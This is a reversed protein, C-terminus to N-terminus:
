FRMATQFWLRTEDQPAVGEPLTLVRTLAVEGLFRGQLIRVGLSLSSWRDHGDSVFASANDWVYGGDIGVFMQTRRIKRDGPAPRQFDYALEVRGGLCNDGNVYGQDFGRSYNNTGYGCRQSLPLSDDSWQGIIGANMLFNGHLPVSAEASFAVRFFDSTVGPASSKPNAIPSSGLDPLGKSMSLAFRRQFGFPRGQSHVMALRIFRLDEHVVETGASEARESRATFELSGTLSGGVVPWTQRAGFSANAIMGNAQLPLLNETGLEFRGFDANAYLTPGADGLALRYGIGGAALELGEAASPGGLVAVADLQDGRLALDPLSYGISGIYPGIAEAGISSFTMFGTPEDLSRILSTSGRDVGTAPDTVLTAFFSQAQSIGASLCWFLATFVASLRLTQLSKKGWHGCQIPLLWSDILRRTRRESLIPSHDPARHWRRAM